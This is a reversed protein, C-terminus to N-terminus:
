EEVVGDLISITIDIAILGQRRKEMFAFAVFGTKDTCSM